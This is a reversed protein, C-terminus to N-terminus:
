FFVERRGGQMRSAETPKSMAVKTDFKSVMTVIILVKRLREARAETQM